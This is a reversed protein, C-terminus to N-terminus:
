GRRMMWATPAVILAMGFLMQGDINHGQALDFVLAFIVQSLGVVSVKAPDGAAFAKTLLLQGVSATVGVGVLLLLSEWHWFPVPGPTLPFIIFSAICFVTSVASFHVVIARPDLEHLRHLGLMAVATSLSSALAVLLPLEPGGVQPNYICYVGLVGLIVAIWARPRPVIGIMPWSLVAVWVPFMNTLTFVTSIPLRTLAYFTGVLSISGAISRMWLIRPRWLVLKTGTAIAPVGVFLLVLFCRSLAVVQWECRDGAMHALAAMVSFSFSGLLM